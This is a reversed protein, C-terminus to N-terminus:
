KMSAGMPKLELGAARFLDVTNAHDGRDQEIHRYKCQPEQPQMVFECGQQKIDGASGICWCRCCGQWLARWTGTCCQGCRFQKIGYTAGMAQYAARTQDVYLKIDSRGAKVVREYLSHGLKPTGCGVFALQVPSDNVGVKAQKFEDAVLLM